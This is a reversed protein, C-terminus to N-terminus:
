KWRIFWVVMGEFPSIDAEPAPWGAKDTSVVQLPFLPGMLGADYWLEVKLEFPDKCCPYVFCMDPDLIHNQRLGNGAEM